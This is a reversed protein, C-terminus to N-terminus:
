RLLCLNINGQHKPAQGQGQDAQHAHCLVNFEALNLKSLVCYKHFITECYGRASAVSDNDEVSVIARDIAGTTTMATDVARIQDCCQSM